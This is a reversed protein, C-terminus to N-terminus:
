AAHMQAQERAPVRPAARAQLGLHTLIKEIVPQELTLTGAVWREDLRHLQSGQTEAILSRSSTLISRCCISRQRSRTAAYRAEPCVAFAHASAFSTGIREIALQHASERRQRALSPPTLASGNAAALDLPKTAARTAGLAADADTRTSSM